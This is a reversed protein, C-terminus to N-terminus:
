STTDKHEAVWEDVQKWQDMLWVRRQAQEKPIDKNAVRWFYLRIPKGILSGNWMDWFTSVNEFGVHACFLVDAEDGAELLALPGGLRPPLVHGYSEARELSETDGKERLRQLIRARKKPSFRTGEPYILTGDKPGLDKALARVKEIEAESDGSGRKVFANPIRLGVIDLCPDWLLEHKLVYRLRMRYPACLFGVALVTDAVSAHRIFLHYPGNEGLEAGEVEFRCSYLWGAGFLLTKGWLHQLRYNADVFRVRDYGPLLFRLWLLFSAVIGVWECLLYLLFFCTVRLAAFRKRRVIGLLFMSLLLLPSLAFCLSGLVGYLPLSLLRRKWVEGWRYEEGM